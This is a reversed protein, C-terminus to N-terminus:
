AANKRLMFICGHVPAGRDRRLVVQEMGLETFGNDSVLNRVYAPAHAYRDTARLV